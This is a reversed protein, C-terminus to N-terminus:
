RARARAARPATKASAAPKTAKKSKVHTQEPKELPAPEQHQAAALNAVGQVQLTWYVEENYLRQAHGAFRQENIRQGRRRAADGLQTALKRGTEALRVYQRLWAEYEHLRAFADSPATSM